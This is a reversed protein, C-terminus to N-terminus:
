GIWSIYSCSHGVDLFEFLLFGEVVDAFQHAGVPAFNLVGSDRCIVAM